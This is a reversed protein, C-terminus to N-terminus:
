RRTHIRRLASERRELQTMQRVARNKNTRAYFRKVRRHELEGPQTSYSDSTGFLLITPVYDGLSHLKYTSLNYEKANATTKVSPQAVTPAKGKKGRAAKKAQRRGRAAQESPLEKTSFQPCITNKFCRLLRGMEKNAKRLLPISSETHLKLKALSHWEALVFFLDLIESNWPEPLLGDIVPIACILISQYNWAAMKKLLSTNSTFRRITAQGFTPILRFRRDLNSVCAGGQAFLIRLIHIFFAKFVGLEFEHMFDPVLMRFPNFNFKSLRASFANVTPTESLPQLYHEAAASKISYGWEYIWRRVREIRGRRIPTDERALKERRTDDFVTGLDHIQDKPLTCRPCPSKGLNRITALLVKEPYDASYTFIRPYFRRSIGDECEIVIGHEYAHLFEDDLLLHWIKHMLERRCHTLLEPSPPKGTLKAFFDHFSDPLKPFYAVHHCLDSRPKVRLWKSQNGFFLYLPWLSADGFSALHTSDSWWMLSLVVRELTCGPEPPQKHLTTHAEVMADSSYIEDFIRQPPSDPSPVWFQKFPTYHFCRAGANHIASKIVEVIPRYHLGPVSFIPADAESDHPQGDPVSIDVSVQKWGDRAAESPSALFVDFAATERKVDFDRIDEKVFQDSKLFDVLKDMEEVSKTASGTWQWNMLGFISTNRFPGTEPPTPQASDPVKEPPTIPKDSVSTFPTRAAPSTATNSRTTAAPIDSLDTIALSDDPNYTPMSPYERYLGFSNMSTRLAKWVWTSVSEPAPEPTPEVPAEEIILPTEPLQELLKWTKRKVRAGRGAPPLEQPPPPPPSASHFDPMPDDPLESLDVNHSPGAVAQSSSLEEASDSVPNLKRRKALQRQQYLARGDPASALERAAATKADKVYPCAVTMKIAWAELDAAISANVPKHAYHCLSQVAFQLTQISWCEMDTDITSWSPAPHGSSSAWVTRVFFPSTSRCAAPRAAPGLFVDHASTCYHWSGNDGYLPNTSSGALDRPISYLPPGTRAIPVRKSHAERHTELDVTLTAEPDNGKNDLPSDPFPLLGRAEEASLDYWDGRTGEWPQCPEDRHGVREAYFLFPM